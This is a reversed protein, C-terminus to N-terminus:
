VCQGPLHAGGSSGPRGSSRREGPSPQIEGLQLWTRHSSLFTEVLDPRDTGPLEQDISRGMSHLMAALYRYSPRFGASAAVSAPEIPRTPDVPGLTDKHYLMELGAISWREAVQQVRWYLRGYTTIDVDIGDLAGRAHVAADAHALARNGRLELHVEGIEHFSRSGAEYMARSAAVFQAGSGAFWSVRVSAGDLFAGRMEDWRALDRAARESLVVNIVAREDSASM